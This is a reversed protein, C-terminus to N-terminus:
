LLKLTAVMVMTSGLAVGAHWWEFKFTGERKTTVGGYQDKLGGLDDKGAAHASNVIIALMMGIALCLVLIAGIRRACM